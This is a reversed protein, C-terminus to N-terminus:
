FLFTRGRADGRMRAAAAGCAEPRARGARRASRAASDCAARRGRRARANRGFLPRGDVAWVRGRLHAPLMRPLAATGEAAARAATFGCPMAIVVDPAAAALAADPLSASSAGAGRGLVEDGGAISVLEPVWHGASFLPELWEVCAVRPRSAGRAAAVRARVADVRARLATVAAAGREPVGAARAVASVDKYLGDLSSASLTLTTVAARAVPDLAALADAVLQPGPACVACLDQSLLLTPGERAAAALLSADLRLLPAASASASVSAKVLDDIDRSSTLDQDFSCSLFRPLRSAARVDCEDTVGRLLHELGLLHCISTGAPLSSLIRLPAALATTTM